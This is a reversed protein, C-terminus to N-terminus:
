EITKRLQNKENDALKIKEVNGPQWTQDYFQQTPSFLRLKASWPEYSVTKLYNSEPAGIPLEPGFYIGM